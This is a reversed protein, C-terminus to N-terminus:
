RMITRHTILDTLAPSDRGAKNPRTPRRNKQSVNATGDTYSLLIGLVACLSKDTMTERKDRDGVRFRAGDGGGGGGM